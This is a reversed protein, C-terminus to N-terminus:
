MLADKSQITIDSASAQRKRLVDKERNEPSLAKTEVKHRTMAGLKAQEERSVKRLDERQHEM